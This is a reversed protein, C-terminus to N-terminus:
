MLGDAGGTSLQDSIKKLLRQANGLKQSAGPINGGSYDSEAQGIANQAASLDASMKTLVAKGKSKPAKKIDVATEKAMKKLAALNTEVQTKMEAKAGAVEANIQAALTTVNTLLGKAKNYSRSMAFAKSQLELEAEATALAEKVNQFNNPMYKDAEADQAAKVAARAAALEQDPAKACGCLSGAICMGAVLAAMLRFSSRM